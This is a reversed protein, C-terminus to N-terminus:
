FISAPSYDDMAAPLVGEIKSVTKFIDNGDSIKSVSLTEVIQQFNKIIQFVLWDPQM